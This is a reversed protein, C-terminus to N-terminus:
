LYNVMVAGYHSVSEKLSNRQIMFELKLYSLPVEFVMWLGGIIRDLSGGDAPVGLLSLPVEVIYM